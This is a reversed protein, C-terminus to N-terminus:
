IADKEESVLRARANLTTSEIQQIVPGETRAHSSLM